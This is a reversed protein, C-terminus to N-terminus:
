EDAKSQYPPSFMMRAYGGAYLGYFVTALLLPWPSDLSVAKVLAMFGAFGHILNGFLLPRGYIGGYVANRGSWNMVGLGFLAAGLMSFPLEPAPQGFLMLAAEAPLFMLIIGMFGLGVATPAIVFIPRM